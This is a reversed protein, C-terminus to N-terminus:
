RHVPRNRPLGVAVFHHAEPVDGSAWDRQAQDLDDCLWANCTTSRLTRPLRCGSDGQFICGGELHTAGVHGIYLAELDDLGLSPNMALVRSLSEADLFAHTGGRRCCWGRCAACGRELGEPHTDDSADATLSDAAGEVPVESGTRRLHRRFDAIEDLEVDVARAANAPVLSWSATDPDVGDAILRGRALRVREAKTERRDAERHPAVAAVCRLRGCVAGATAGQLPDLPTGCVM